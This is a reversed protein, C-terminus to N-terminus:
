IFVVKVKKKKKYIYRHHIWQFRYELIQSFMVVVQEM